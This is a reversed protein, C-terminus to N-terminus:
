HKEDLFGTIIEPLKNLNNSFVHDDDLWIVTAQQAKVFEVIWSNPVLEDRTAAVIFIKCGIKEEFLIKDQMDVLIRQPIGQIKSIDVFPPIIAPNLLILLKVNSNKLATKAALLGGLSSGILFPNTDNEIAKIIRTVCDSVILDEPECDRYKIPIANLQEKFLTGKTSNPASLYGHIYYLM